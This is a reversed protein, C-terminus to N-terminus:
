TWVSVQMHINIVAKSMIALIQICELHGEIPSHIFLSHYMRLYLITWQHFSDSFSHIYTYIHSFCKAICRFIVCCQSDVIGWYLIFIWNFFHAIQNWFFHFFSLYMNSLKFLGNSFAAYQTVGVEHCELFPFIISVIFLNATALPQSSPAFLHLVAPNLATFRNQIM